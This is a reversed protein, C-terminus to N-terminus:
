FFVSIQFHYNFKHLLEAVSLPENSSTNFFFFRATPSPRPILKDGTPSGWDVAPQLRSGRVAYVRRAHASTQM